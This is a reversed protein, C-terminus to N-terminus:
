CVGRHEGTQDHHRVYFRLNIEPFNIFGPWQIGFVRTDSFDFAVLSAFASGDILDLSCGPPVFPQLLAPDLRYTLMALNTWRATLFPKKMAGPNHASCGAIVM